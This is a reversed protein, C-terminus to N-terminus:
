SNQSNHDSMCVCLCNNNGLICYPLPPTFVSCLFINRLVVKLQSVQTKNMRFSEKVSLSKKIFYELLKYNIYFTTSNLLKSLMYCMNALYSIRYVQLVYYM